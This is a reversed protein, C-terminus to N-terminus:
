SIREESFQKPEARGEGVTHMGRARVLNVLNLSRLHVFEGPVNVLPLTWPEVGDQVNAPILARIDRKGLSM